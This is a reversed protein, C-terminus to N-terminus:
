QAPKEAKCQATYWGFVLEPIERRRLSPEKELSKVGNADNVERVLELACSSANALVNAFYLRGDEPKFTYVIRCSTAASSTAGLVETYLTFERGADIPVTVTEGRQLQAKGIAPKGPALSMMGTCKEPKAFTAPLVPDRTQNSITLTALPPKVPAVYEKAGIAACMASWLGAVLVRKM